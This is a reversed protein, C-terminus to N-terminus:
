LHLFQPLSHNMSSPVSPLPVDSELLWASLWERQLSAWGEVGELTASLENRGQTEWIM